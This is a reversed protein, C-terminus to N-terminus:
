QSSSTLTGIIDFSYLTGGHVVGRKRGVALERRVMLLRRHFDEKTMLSRCYRSALRMGRRSYRKSNVISSLVM